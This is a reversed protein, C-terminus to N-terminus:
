HTKKGTLRRRRHGRTRRRDIAPEAIVGRRALRRGLEVEIPVLESAYCAAIVPKMRSLFAEDNALREEFAQEDADTMSGDLYEALQELEMEDPSGADPSDADPEFDLVNM